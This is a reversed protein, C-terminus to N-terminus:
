EAVAAFSELTGTVVPALLQQSLLNDWVFVKVTTNMPKDAVNVDVRARGNKYSKSGDLVISDMSVTDLEVSDLTGDAKYFAAVVTATKVSGDDELTKTARLICSLEGDEVVPTQLEFKNAPETASKRAFEIYLYNQDKTTQLIIQHKGTLAKCDTWQPTYDTLNGTGGTTYTTEPNEAILHADDLVDAYVKFGGTTDKVSQDTATHASVAYFPEDGFDVENFVIYEGPNFWGVAGVDNWGVDGHINERVRYLYMRIQGKELDYIEQGEPEGAFAMSPVLALLMVAALLLAITKKMRM